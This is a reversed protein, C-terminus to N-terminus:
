GPYTTMKVLEGRLESSILHDVLEFEVEPREGFVKYACNLTKDQWITKVDNNELSDAVVADTINGLMSVIWRNALNVM